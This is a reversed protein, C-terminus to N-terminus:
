TPLHLVAALRAVPRFDWHLFNAPHLGSSELLWPTNNRRLKSTNFWTYQLHLVIPIVPGLFCRSRFGHVYVVWRRTLLNCKPSLILFMPLAQDFLGTCHFLSPGCFKATVQLIYVIIHILIGINNFKPLHTIGHWRLMRWKSVTAPGNRQKCCGQGYREQCGVKGHMMWGMRFAKKLLSPNQQRGGIAGRNLSIQLTAFWSTYNAWFCEQNPLMSCHHCRPPWHNPPIDPDTQHQHIEQDSQTPLCQSPPM